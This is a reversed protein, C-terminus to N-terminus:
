ALAEAVVEDWSRVWPCRPLAAAHRCADAWTGPADRRVVVGADAVLAATDGVDAGVVPVGQARYELVKLPCFWPPGDARYPALGVDLAAILDPLAAPQVRPVLRLRPHPRPPAPGSGIALGRASPGLADLIAPLRDVGHWPRMSGVFGVLLQDDGIGLRRRTAERDGLPRPAVGNPVHRVRDAPVGGEAVAWEALWASVAVVRDARQLAQREAPWTREPHRLGGFRARELTLPANVELLLPAGSRRAADAGPTAELAHREWVHDPAFGDLAADVLADDGVVAPVGLPADWRGRHDDLRRVAVRVRAGSRSLARAVGRLHASAGSPGYLPVGRDGCVLLIRPTM